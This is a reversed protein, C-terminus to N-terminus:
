DLGTRMATWVQACRQSRLVRVVSTTTSFSTQHARVDPDLCSHRETRSGGGAETGVSGLLPASPCEDLHGLSYIPLRGKRNGPFAVIKGQLDVPSQAEGPATQGPIFWVSLTEWGSYSRLESAGRGEVWRLPQIQSSASMKNIVINHNEVGGQASKIRNRETYIHRRAEVLTYKPYIENAIM